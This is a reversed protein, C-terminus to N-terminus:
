RAQSVPKSLTNNIGRAYKWSGNPQRKLITMGQGQMEIPAGGAQPMLVFKETGWSFAWDGVVQVEEISVTQEVSRFQPFFSQYMTEVAQKGRIPPFGPPPFVADDTVMSSLRPIDKARVAVLWDETLKRIAQKDN